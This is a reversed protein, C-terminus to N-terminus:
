LQRGLEAGEKIARAADIKHADRAGGIVTHAINHAQLRASWPNHAEQGACVVINDVSLCRQEGRIRLHLGNDDIHVYDVENFMRASKKKLRTRRIWGTTTPLNSGMPQKSRQLLWLQRPSDSKQPTKVSGRLERMEDVGWEREFAPISGDESKCHALLEAMDFGLPGAGVIAVREGLFRPSRLAEIYDVVKANNEGEIGSRRPVVGSAVVVHDFQSLAQVDPTTNLRLEIGLRQIENEFYRLTEALEEKGPIKQALFFQGGIRISPEFLTVSHGREAAERACALGAPGAGLVAIKKVTPAKEQPWELERCARPNVLCSVQQRTFIRDLCAQNCAICTNISASQGSQAKRVFAPDALFPRAMAVMDAHGQAILDDAVEPTNIRNSAVVPISVVQKLQQAAWSFAARPVVMAVTPIRAEHWGVSTNILDVGSAELKRALEQVENWHSGHEVLDMLSLRFSIVFDSPMAARIGQVIRLAFRSRGEANGGWQDERFNTLPALFQNILYGEGGMIEVGDYGADRALCACRVYDDIIQEIQASSLERSSRNSLKSEVSSPSVGGSGHDYRGVHLVQMLIHSGEAHVAETILRHRAAQEPTCLTSFEAHEPMGLAYENVGFGGTVILQLGERAREAYFVALKEFGQVQDELGTHMSGMLIRNKLTLHGITIPQFLHPYM